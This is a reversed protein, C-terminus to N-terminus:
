PNIFQIYYDPEALQVGPQARLTDIWQWEQGIPARYVRIGLRSIERELLLQDLMGQLQPADTLVVEPQLKVLVRGPAIRALRNDIHSSIPSATATTHQFAAISLNTNVAGFADVLGWGYLPDKGLDGLDSASQFMALRVQTASYSPFRGWVLAAVGAVHPAAQSTGSYVKYEGNKFTSFISVGPATLSVYDGQTSFSAIESSANVAGVAIVGPYAAPYSPQNRATCGNYRYSKSDGCNGSSAIVIRGSMIADEIVSRIIPLDEVTGLSLNMIQANQTAFAIGAAVDSEYGGGQSNLVKVPLLSTKPAVGIVGLNNITAAIIGAVHSGHGHDDNADQNYAVFNYGPIVNAALDPHTLDIGTDIVAVVIKPDGVLCRQWALDAQIQRLNFQRELYLPDTLSPAPCNFYNSLVVPLRLKAVIPYSSHNIIIPLALKVSIAPMSDPTLQDPPTDAVARSPLMISGAIILFCVALSILRPAIRYDMLHYQTTKM